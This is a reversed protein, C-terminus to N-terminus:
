AVGIKKRIVRVGGGCRQLHVGSAERAAVRCQQPSPDVPEGDYRALTLIIPPPGEDAAMMALRMDRIRNYSYEAVDM